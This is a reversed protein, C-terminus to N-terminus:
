RAREGGFSLFERGDLNWSGDFWGAALVGGDGLSLTREDWAVFDPYGTGSVFLAHVMALRCGRPGTDALCGALGVEDDARPRVFFCAIGDGQFRRSGISVAGRRVDVPGADARPGGLVPGWASNTDANGYLILNRGRFRAPDALVERDEVVEALGNARYWWVAADFRVRALTERTEADTGGTPLVLAFRRGFARKLPGSRAPTKTGSGIGLAPRHEWVGDTRTFQAAPGTLDFTAGDLAATWKASAGDPRRLVIWAANETTAETRALKADWKARIRVPRGYASPQLLSVWHHAADLSPDVSTWDISAPVSPETRDFLDFIGPWDVCDPGPAAAGDWWHEAGPEVHSAPNGGAARLAALMTEAQSPPVNSDKAGHLVYAPIPALNAALSVTDSGGDAGRWLSELASRPPPGTYTAFSPWGASPAIAAFRDPDNAALHWTGHGGMSHGTLYIRQPASTDGALGTAALAEYADLRGWDQWDFGFPRRNTPCVVWVGPRASYAAAQALPDVGAGHLSLVVRTPVAALSPAPGRLAHEQVSGDIESVRTARWVEGGGKRRLEFAASRVAANADRDARVSVHVKPAASAGDTAGDASPQARLPVKAMSLPLVLPARAAAADPRSLDGSVVPRAARTTANVVLVGLPGIPESGLLDPKTVDWDAPFVSEEVSRLAFRVDVRLGSVFIRNRGKRLAVPV